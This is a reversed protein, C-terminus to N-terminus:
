VYAFSIIGIIDASDLGRSDSQESETAANAATTEVTTTEAATAPTTVATTTATTIEPTATVVVEEPVLVGSLYEIIGSALSEGILDLYDTSVLREYEAPNCLFGMEFLMSPAPTYRAFAFNQKIAPVLGTKAPLGEKVPVNAANVGSVIHKLISDATSKSENLTYFMLPGSASKFDQYMAMSNAHISVTFDAYQELNYLQELRDKVLFTDETDRLFVVNVGKSELYASTVRAVYLTVDKEMFGYAGPPGLAGPDTGGHGADIVVVTDELKSPPAHFQLDIDGEETIKVLFGTANENDRPIERTESDGDFPFLTLVASDEHMEVSYLTSQLNETFDIEEVNSKFVYSGDHIIYCEDNSALLGFVTGKALPTGMKNDDDGDYFRSINPDAAKGYRPEDFYVMQKKSSTGSPTKRIVNLETTKEGNVFVFFNDGLELPTLLSFYGSATTAVEEDNIFLPFAPDCAGLLSMQSTYMTVVGDVAASPGGVGVHPLIIFGSDGFDGRSDRGGLTFGTTTILYITLILLLITYKKM